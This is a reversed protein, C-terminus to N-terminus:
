QGPQIEPEWIIKWVGGEYGEVKRCDYLNVVRREDPGSEVRGASMRVLTVGQHRRLVPIGAFLDPSTDRSKSLTQNTSPSNVDGLNPNKSQFLDGRTDLSYTDGSKFQCRVQLGFRRGPGEPIGQLVFEDIPDPVALGTGAGMTERRSSVSILAGEVTIVRGKYIEGYGQDFVEALEQASLSEKAV